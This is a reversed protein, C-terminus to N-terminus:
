IKIHSVNAIKKPLAYKSKKYDIVQLKFDECGKVYVSTRACVWYACLRMLVNPHTRRSPLHSFFLSRQNKVEFDSMIEDIKLVKHQRPSGCGFKIKKKSKSM